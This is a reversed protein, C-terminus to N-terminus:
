RYASRRADIGAVKLIKKVTDHQKQTDEIGALLIFDSAELFIVASNRGLLLKRM